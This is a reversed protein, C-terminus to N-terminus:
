TEGWTKPAVPHLGAPTYALTTLSNHDEGIQHVIDTRVGVDVLHLLGHGMRGYSMGRRGSKGLGKGWVDGRKGLGSSVPEGLGGRVKM